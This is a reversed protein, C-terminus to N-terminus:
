GPAAASFKLEVLRLSEPTGMVTVKDGLKLQTYGHTVIAQGDRHVALVLTDPPLRLERLLVGHLAPDRLEVDIVQQGEEFGLLL